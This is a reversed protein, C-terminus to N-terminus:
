QHPCDLLAVTEITRKTSLGIPTGTVPVFFKKNINMGALENQLAGQCLVNIPPTQVYPLSDGSARFVSVTCQYSGAQRTRLTVTVNTVPSLLAYNLPNYVGLIVERSLVSINVPFNDVQCTVNTPPTIYVNFFLILEPPETYRPEASPIFSLESFSVNPPAIITLLYFWFM